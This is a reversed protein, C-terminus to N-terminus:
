GPVLAIRLRARRYIPYLRSALRSPCYRPYIPERIYADDCAAESGDSVVPFKICAGSAKESRAPPV